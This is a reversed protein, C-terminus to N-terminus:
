PGTSPSTRSTSSANSHSHLAADAVSVRDGGVLEGRDDLLANEHVVTRDGMEINHGYTFTIGRFLTLDDGVEAFLHDALM